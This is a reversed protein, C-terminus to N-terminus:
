TTFSIDVNPSFNDLLVSEMLLEFGLTYGRRERRDIGM